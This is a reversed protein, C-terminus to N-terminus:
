RCIDKYACKKELVSRTKQHVNARLHPTAMKKQAVGVTKM